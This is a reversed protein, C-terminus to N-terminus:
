WSVVAEFGGEAANGFSVTMGHLTAIRRVISLGLGSGTVSQGPPRYFREGIHTLIEPAVGPGNDRVTFSRAHLTVDVVSGQPSYRIANDLLNRVLLSLLLPQGTRIVDHANLQLRVDINAQLQKSNIMLQHTQRVSSALATKAREFAQKADTQDLTVLVDGEKVFDTNDAWVKTVSGSVQAMIQVQNGAVYADDTEEIHRLVLFWYIGYAVAIIVFLLTLLLLATKRKGKKKAPQQPTQIEANASM